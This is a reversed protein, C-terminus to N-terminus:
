FDSYIGISKILDYGALRDKGVRPDVSYGEPVVVLDIKHRELYEESLVVPSDFLVEDVWRVHRVLECREVHPLIVSLAHARCQVDTFPGALLHVRSFSLKAQRLQPLVSPICVLIDITSIRNNVSTYKPLASRVNLNEFTGDVYVRVTRSSTLNRPDGRITFVDNQFQNYGPISNSRVFSRIDEASFVAPEYLKKADESPPPEFREVVARSQASSAVGPNPSNTGTITQGEYAYTHGYRGNRSGGPGASTNAEPFSLSPGPSDLKLDNFSAISAISSELSPPDAADSIVDYDTFDDSESVSTDNSSMRIPTKNNSTPPMFPLQRSTLYSVFRCVLDLSM